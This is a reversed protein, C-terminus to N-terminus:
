EKQPTLASILELISPPIVGGKSIVSKAANDAKAALDNLTDFAEIVTGLRANVETITDHMMASIRAGTETTILKILATTAENGTLLSALRILTEKEHPAWSDPDKSAILPLQAVHGRFEEVSVEYVPMMTNIGHLFGFGVGHTDPVSRVLLGVGPNEDVQFYRHSHKTENGNIKTPIGLTAESADGIQLPIPLEFARFASESVEIRALNGGSSVEIGFNDKTLEAGLGIGKVSFYIKPIVLTLGNHPDRLVDNFAEGTGATALLTRTGFTGPGICGSPLEGKLIERLARPMNERNKGSTLFWDMESNTLFNAGGRIANLREIQTLAVPLGTEKSKYLGVNSPNRTVIHAM